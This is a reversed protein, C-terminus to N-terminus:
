RSFVTGQAYITVLEGLKEDSSTAIETQEQLTSIVKTQDTIIEELRAVQRDNSTISNKLLQETVGANPINESTNVSPNILSNQFAESLGLSTNKQFTGRIRELINLQEKYSETQAEATDKLLEADNLRKNEFTAQDKLIDLLGRNAEFEESTKNYAETVLRKQRDLLANKIKQVKAGLQQIQEIRSQEAAEEGRKFLDIMAQRKEAIKSELELVKKNQQIEALRNVSQYQGVQREEEPTVTVLAIAAKASFTKLRREVNDWYAEAEDGAKIWSDSLIQGAKEAESSVVSLDGKTQKLINNVKIAQEGFIKTTATLVETSEGNNIITKSLSNILQETTKLELQNVSIGLEKFSQISDKNGQLAKAQATRLKNIAEAVTEFTVGSKEALRQLTQVSSANIDYINSLNDLNDAAGLANKSLVLLAAGFILAKTPTFTAKLVKTVGALKTTTAIATTQASSLIKTTAAQKGLAVSQVQAASAAQYTIKEGTKLKKSLEEYVADLKSTKKTLTSTAKSAAGLGGAIGLGGASAASGIGGAAAAGGAATTINLETTIGEKLSDTVRRIKREAGSIDVNLDLGKKLKTTVDKLAKDFEDTDARLEIFASAVTNDAM